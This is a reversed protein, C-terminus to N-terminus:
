LSRFPPGRECQHLVASYSISDDSALVSGFCSLSTLGASSAALTFKQTSHLCTACGHWHDIPIHVEHAGCAHPAITEVEQGGVTADHHVVQVLLGASLYALLLLRALPKQM